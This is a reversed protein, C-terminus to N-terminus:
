QSGPHERQSGSHGRDMGTPAHQANWYTTPLRPADICACMPDDRNGLQRMKANFRGAGSRIRNLKCYFPRELKYGPPHNSVTNIFRKLRTNQDEWITMLHDHASACGSGTECQELLETAEQTFLRTSKFRQNTGQEMYEHLIHQEDRQARLAIIM